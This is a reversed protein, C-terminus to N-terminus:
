LVAVRGDTSGTVKCSMPVMDLPNQLLAQCGQMTGCRSAGSTEEHWDSRAERGREQLLLKQWVQVGEGLGGFIWGFNTWFRDFFGCRAAHSGLRTPM